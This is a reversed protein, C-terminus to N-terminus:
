KDDWKRKVLQGPNNYHIVKAYNGVATANDPINKTVVSGAGLTVNHGIEINEVICSNPGVYVNNGIRAAHSIEAGITSFQMITFNDGIVASPNIVIPGNHGIYLGYGIETQYSFQFKDRVYIRHFPYALIFCLKGALSSRNRCLRYFVTARFAKRTIFNKIFATFSIKGSYRYLDSIIYNYIENM